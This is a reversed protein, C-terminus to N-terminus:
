RRTPVVGDQPVAGGILRRYLTTYHEVMHRVTFASAIRERAAQALDKRLSPDALLRRVADALMAAEGTPVVIGFRSDPILERVGEVDYAVVPLGSAMAELVVNPMGEWRSPLVLCTASKMLAPVDSRRGLCHIRRGQPHAAIRQRLTDYLPGDGVYVLHVDEGADLFRSAM